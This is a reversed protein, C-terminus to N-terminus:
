IRRTFHGVGRGPPCSSRTSESFRGCRNLSTEPRWPQHPLGICCHSSCSTAGAISSEIQSPYRTATQAARLGRAVLVSLSRKWWEAAPCNEASTMPLEATRRPVDRVVRARGVPPRTLSLMWGFTSGEAVTQM